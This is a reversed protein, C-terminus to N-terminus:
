SDSCRLASNLHGSRPHDEKGANFRGGPDSSSSRLLQNGRERQPPLEIYENAPNKSVLKKPFAELGAGMPILPSQAEGSAWKSEEGTNEFTAVAEALSGVGPARTGAREKGKDFTMIGSQGLVAATPVRPTGNM